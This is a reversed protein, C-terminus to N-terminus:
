EGRLIGAPQLRQLRSIPVIAAVLAITIGGMLIVPFISFRPSIPAHFNVRGIWMAVGVGLTFGIIAGVAGIAAAEAAFFGQIM